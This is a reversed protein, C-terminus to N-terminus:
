EERGRGIYTDPNDPNDYTHINHLYCEHSLHRTVRLIGPNDLYDGRLSVLTDVVDSSNVIDSM